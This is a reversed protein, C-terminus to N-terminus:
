PKAGGMASLVGCPLAQNYFELGKQKEGLDSYVRGIGMLVDAEGKNDGLARKLLLAQNLYDLAKQKQDLTAYAKGINVLTKAEASRDGLARFMQLAQNYTDIAKQQEGITTYTIGITFLVAAENPRDRLSRLLSAAEQYKEIAKRLAEPSGQARLEQAEKFAKAAAAKADDLAPGQVAQNAYLPKGIELCPATTQDVRAYSEFHLAQLILILLIGAIYRLLHSSLTSQVGYNV